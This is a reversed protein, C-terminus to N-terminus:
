TQLYTRVNVFKIQTIFARDDHYGHTGQLMQIVNDGLLLEDDTLYILNKHFPLSTYKIYTCVDVPVCM